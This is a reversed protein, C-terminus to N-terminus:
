QGNMEQNIYLLTSQCDALIWRDMVNQIDDAASLTGAKFAQGTNAKYLTAQEHFFRYSNWLPLLVKTVVERVGAEKFRLPEGRVVPSNILYLRLADSGHSHIIAMPDPYNKLSKSMKKGDEALVLGNVIVNKFPATAFPHTGLVTLTYFWGRTQDLGEAIFDAPFLEGQFSNGNEFPYHNSAYPM